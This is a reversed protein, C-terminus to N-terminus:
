PHGGSGRVLITKGQISFHLNYRELISLLQQLTLYRSLQGTYVKGPTKRNILGIYEVRSMGYWHAIENMADDLDANSFDFLLEASSWQPQPFDNASVKIGQGPRVTARQASNIIATSRGSDKVAVRGSYCFVASSDERKFDRLGFFTGLVTIKQRLTQVVTPIEYNPSVDVLAQGDCALQKEKLLTGRPYVHFTLITHPSLEMRTSDQFFVQIREGGKVVFHYALTDTSPRDEEAGQLVFFQNGMRAIQIAGASYASGEKMERLVMSDTAGWNLTAEIPNKIAMNGTGPKSRWWLLTGLGLILIIAAAIGYPFLAWQRDTDPVWDLLGPVNGIKQKTLRDIRSYDIEEEEAMIHKTKPHYYFNHSM